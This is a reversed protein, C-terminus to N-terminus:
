DEVIEPREKSTADFSAWAYYGDKVAVTHDEGRFRVTVSQAGEPAPGGIYVVGRGTAADTLHWGGSGSGGGSIRWGGSQRDCTVWWPCGDVGSEPETDALVLTVAQDAEEITTIPRARGAFGALAVAEPSPYVASTPSFDVAPGKNASATSYSPPTPSPTRLLCSPMTWCTARTMV